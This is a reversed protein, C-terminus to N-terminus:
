SSRKGFRRRLEDVCSALQRDTKISNEVAELAHLVTSHDRGGFSNGISKLNSNTYMRSFYMAVQRAVVINRKRTAGKLLDIPVSLYESVAETIYDINLEREM